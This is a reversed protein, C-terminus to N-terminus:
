TGKWSTVSPLSVRIEPVIGAVSDSKLISGGVSKVIGVLFSIGTRTSIVQRGCHGLLWRSARFALQCELACWDLGVGRGLVSISRTSYLPRQYGSSCPINRVATLIVGQESYCGGVSTSVIGPFGALRVRLKQARSRCGREDCVGPGCTVSMWGATRSLPSRIPAALLTGDGLVARSAAGFGNESSKSL